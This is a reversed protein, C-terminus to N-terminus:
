IKIGVDTYEPSQGQVALDQNLAVEKREWEGRSRKIISNVVCVGFEENVAQAPIAPM